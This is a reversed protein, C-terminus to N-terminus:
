FGAEIPPLPKFRVFPPLRRLISSCLEVISGSSSKTLPVIEISSNTLYVDFSSGDIPHTAQLITIPNDHLIEIFYHKMIYSKISNIEENSFTVEKGNPEDSSIGIGFLSIRGDVVKRHRDMYRRDTELSRRIYPMIVFQYFDGFSGSLFCLRSETYIRLKSSGSDSAYCLLRLGTFSSNYKRQLKLALELNFTDGSKLWERLSSRESAMSFEELIIRDYTGELELITEIMDQPDIYAPSLVSFFHNRVLSRIVVDSIEDGQNRSIFIWWDKEEIIYGEIERVKIRIKVRYLKECIEKFEFLIGRKKSSQAIREVTAENSPIVVFAHLPRSSSNGYKATLYSFFHGISGFKQNLFEKDYDDVM